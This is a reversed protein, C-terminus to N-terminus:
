VLVLCFCFYRWVCKEWYHLIGFLIVMNQIRMFLHHLLMACIAIGKLVATDQLTLNFKM